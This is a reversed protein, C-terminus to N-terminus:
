TPPQRRPPTAEAAPAGGGYLRGGGCRLEAGAHATYRGPAADAAAPAAYREPAAAVPSAYREPEAAATVPAVYREPAVAPEPAPEAAHPIAALNFSPFLGTRGDQTRLEAM